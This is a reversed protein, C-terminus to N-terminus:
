AVQNNEFSESEEKKEQMTAMTKAMNIIAEKGEESSQRYMRILDIELNSLEIDDITSVKVVKNELNLSDLESIAETLLSHIKNKPNNRQMAMPIAAAAVGLFPPLGVNKKTRDLDKITLPPLISIHYEIAKSGQRQRRKEPFKKALTELKDKARRATSPMDEKGALEQATFWESLKNM